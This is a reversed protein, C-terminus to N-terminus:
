ISWNKEVYHALYKKKMVDALDKAFNIASSAHSFTAVLQRNSKSVDVVCVDYNKRYHFHSKITTNNSNFGEDNIVVTIYEFRSLDFKRGFRFLNFFSTYHFLMNNEFDLAIGSTSFAFLCGSTLLISSIIYGIWHFFLVPLICLLILLYGSIVLAPIFAKEVNYYQIEVKIKHSM